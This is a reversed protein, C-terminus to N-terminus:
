CSQPWRREFNLLGYKKSPVAKVDYIEYDRDNFYDFLSQDTTSNSLNGVHICYFKDYENHKKEPGKVEKKKDVNEVKYITKTEIKPIVPRIITDADKDFM